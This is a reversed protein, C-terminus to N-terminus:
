DSTLYRSAVYAEQDNYIIVTWDSDNEYVRVFEVVTGAPLTALKNGDTSPQSRVNLNDITKYVPAATTPAMTEPAIESTEPVTSTEEVTVPPTTEPPETEKDKPKFVAILVIILVLVLSM